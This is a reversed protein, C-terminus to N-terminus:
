LCRGPFTHLVSIISIVVVFDKLTKWIERINNKMCVSYKKAM